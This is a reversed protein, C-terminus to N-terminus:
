LIRVDDNDITNNETFIHERRSEDADIWGKKELDFLYKANMMQVGLWLRPQVENGLKWM